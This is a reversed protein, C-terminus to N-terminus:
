SGICGYIFIFLSRCHKVTKLLKMHFVCPKMDDWLLGKGRRSQVGGEWKGRGSTVAVKKGTNKHRSRKKEIKVKAFSLM